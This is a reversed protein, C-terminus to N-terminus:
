QHLSLYSHHPITRSRWRETPKVIGSYGALLKIAHEAGCGPAYTYAVAPPDDSGWPRNDRAMSWFYGIKTRGRGPDLVPVPTEDVALKVSGLLIERLRAVVPALEAAAYGVWSALTMREVVIGQSKLMQAQRYLPLHWAYKSALVHAVMAETPLGGKILREPTPAQVIGNSCARCAYKPRRTVLVRYQAPIVDLREATEEGIVHMPGKVVSALELHRNSVHMVILGHPKLKALYIAMAERTLLHIPIADSSFADVIILDYAADSAQALTLRADGLIIPVDPRCEALFSFLAPDRAIRVIAPDIEYYDVADQPEARCALSGPRLDIDAWHSRM